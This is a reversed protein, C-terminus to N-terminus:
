DLQIIKDFYPKLSQRHTVFVITVENKLKVLCDMIQAETQTDLSSTAEDLLLLRPKRLLVRALALRQREGGSFHFHYNVISTDLGNKQNLVFKNAEVQELVSFIDEDTLDKGSDWVLNERITGEVFFSDQPLYGLESKWVPLKDRTLVEDDVFVGGSEAELLGSILDMLTTKGRGSKGIIGTINYAPFTESFGKFISQNKIYSFNLDRVELKHQLPIQGKFEVGNFSAQKIEQETQMVLRVSAMNSVMMNLNSNIGSFRPFIRSFLLILVFLSTLPIKLFTYSIYVIIVLAFVGVISTLLTPVARNKAQKIQYDLMMRNSNDFKEYYFKESNHVKAMKIMLWFEDIQRLMKRFAQINANGLFSARRLNKRLLVFVLLGVVIIFLSFKVSILFAIAVHTMIFIVKTLLNLYSYYYMTMKPIETTFVQIHNHKSKQNLFVWDCKIIKRFLRRRTEYSFEQQYTAQMVTQFYSLLAISLLSIAFLALILTLSAQQGSHKLLPALIEAWKGHQATQAGDPSILGLLPILLVITFGQNFGLFLTILFLFVLKWPRLRFFQGFSKIIFKNDLM